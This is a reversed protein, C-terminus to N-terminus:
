NQAVYSDSGYGLVIDGTVHHVDRESFQASCEAQHTAFADNCQDLSPMHTQMRLDEFPGM